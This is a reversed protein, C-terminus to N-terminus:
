SSHIGIPMKLDPFRAKIKTLAALITEFDRVGHNRAVDSLIPVCIEAFSHKQESLTLLLALAKKKAKRGKNVHFLVTRFFLEMKQLTDKDWQIKEALTLVYEQVVLHPHESGRLMLEKLDLNAEHKQVMEMALQQVDKRATDLLGYVLEPTIRSAPLSRIYDFMWERTDEWDTEILNVMWDETIRDEAKMMLQRAERRVSAVQHHAMQLLEKFSLQYPDLPFKQMWFAVFEQVNSNKNELLALVKLLPMDQLEEIFLDKFLHHIIFSQRHEEGESQIYSWLKPLLQPLYPLVWLQNKRFFQSIFSYSAENAQLVYDALWNGDLKLRVMERELITQAAQRVEEIPSILFPLLEEGTFPYHEFSITRLVESSFAQIKPDQFQLFHLAIQITAWKESLLEKFLMLSDDVYRPFSSHNMCRWILQQVQETSWLEVHKMVFKRAEKRVEMCHHFMFTLWTDLDFAHPEMRDLMVGAAFAMRDDQNSEFLQHLLEDSLNRVFDPNGMRLARSAFQIVPRAKAEKVLLLLQEPHKDWLEPFAEEREDPLELYADYGIAKWYKSSAPIFRSSNHYLLHNFLWLRTFSDVIGQSFYKRMGDLNDYHLLVQSALKVYDDSGQEGLRRLFRWARRRMYHRTKRSYEHNGGIDFRYALVPWIVEDRKEEALKYLAKVYHLTNFHIPIFTFKDRTIFRYNFYFLNGEGIQERFHIYTYADFLQRLGEKALPSPHRYLELLWSYSPVENTDVFYRYDKYLKYVERRLAELFSPDEKKLLDFLEKPLQHDPLKVHEDKWWAVYKGVINGGRKFFGWVM